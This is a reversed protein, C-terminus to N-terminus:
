QIEHESTVIKHILGYEVSEQASLWFDRETNLEITEIPQGTADSFIKNLRKKMWNIEKSYADFDEARGHFGGSPQHLLFRTNPLSYRNEKKAAVFILAGASAVWGSGITIVKPKIFKIADYIMDGSEVHGGPSSIFITIPDDNIYALAHLQRIVDRALLHNIEGTIFIKRSAILSDEIKSTNNSNQPQENTEFTATTTM